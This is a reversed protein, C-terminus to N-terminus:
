YCVDQMCGDADTPVEVGLLKQMSDNWYQPIDSVKLTGGFLAQEIEFRLIIHLPYTVEDANVRILGPSVQNVALYFDNASCDKTHPFYEHFLPTAYQWFAESLFVRWVSHSHGDTHLAWGSALLDNEYSCCLPKTVNQTVTMIYLQGNKGM